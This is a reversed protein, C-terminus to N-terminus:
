AGLMYMIVFFPFWLKSGSDQNFPDIIGVYIEGNKNMNVDVSYTLGYGDGFKSILMTKIISQKVVSDKPPAYNSM